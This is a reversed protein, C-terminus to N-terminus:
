KTVTLKVMPVDLNFWRVGEEVLDPKIYYTRPISPATVSIYMSASENSSIIPVM